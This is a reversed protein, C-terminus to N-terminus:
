TSVGYEFSINVSSQIVQPFGWQKKKTHNAKIDIYLTHFHGEFKKNSACRLKSGNNKDIQDDELTDNLFFFVHASCRELFFVYRM